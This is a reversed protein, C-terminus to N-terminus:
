LDYILRCYSLILCPMSVIVEGPKLLICFIWIPSVSSFVIFVVKLIIEITFLGTFVHDAYGLIQLSVVM